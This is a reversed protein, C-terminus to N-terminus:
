SEGKFCSLIKEGCLKVIRKCAHGICSRRKEFVEKGRPVNRYMHRKHRTFFGFGTEENIHGTHIIIDGSDNLGFVDAISETSEFKEHPKMLDLTSMSTFTSQIIPTAFINLKHKSSSCPQELPYDTYFSDCSLFDHRKSASFAPLRMSNNISLSSSTLTATSPCSDDISSQSAPIGVCIDQSFFRRFWLRRRSRQHNYALSRSDNLSQASQMLYTDSECNKSQQHLTVVTQQEVACYESTTYYQTAAKSYEVIDNYQLQISDDAPDCTAAIPKLEVSIVVWDILNSEDVSPRNFQSLSNYNIDHGCNNNNAEVTDDITIEVENVFHPGFPALKTQEDANITPWEDIKTPTNEESLQHQKQQQQVGTVENCYVNLTISTAATHRSIRTSCATTRNLLQSRRSDTSKSVLGSNTEGNSYENVDTICSFPQVLSQTGYLTETVVELVIDDVIIATEIDDSDYTATATTYAVQGDNPWEAITFNDIITTKDCRNSISKTNVEPLQSTTSAATATTTTTTTTTTTLCVGGGGITAKSSCSFCCCYHTVKSPTCMSRYDNTRQSTHLANPPLIDTAIDCAASVAAM